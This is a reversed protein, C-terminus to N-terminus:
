ASKAGPISTRSTPDVRGLTHVPACSGPQADRSTGLGSAPDPEISRPLDLMREGPMYDTLVVRRVDRISAITKAMHELNGRISSLYGAVAPDSSAASGGARRDVLSLQMEIISIINNLEHNLTVALQRLAVVKRQENAALQDALANYATALEDFEDRQAIRIRHTFHEHALERSGEILEGVPRLIINATRVLVVIAINTMLLAAVALVVILLRLRHSLGAREADLEARSARALENIGDHIEHGLSALRTRSEPDVTMRATALGHYVAGDAQLKALLQAQGTSDTRGQARVQEIAAGFSAHREALLEAPVTAESEGPERTAHELAAFADGLNQVDTLVREARAAAADFDALLSQLLAISVVAGAVFGVLLLGLRAMLKKRLM